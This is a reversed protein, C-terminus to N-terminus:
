YKIESQTWFDLIGPNMTSHKIKEMVELFFCAIKWSKRTSFCVIKGSEKSFFVKEGSSIKWPIKFIKM